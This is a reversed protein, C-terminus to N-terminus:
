FGNGAIKIGLFILILFIRNGDLVAMKFLGKKAAERIRVESNELRDM